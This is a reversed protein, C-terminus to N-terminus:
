FKASYRTGADDTAKKVLSTQQYAAESPGTYGTGSYESGVSLDAYTTPRVYGAPAAAASAAAAAAGASPSSADLMAALSSVYEGRPLTAAAIHVTPPRQRPPGTPAAVDEMVVDQMPLEQYMYQNTGAMQRMYQRRRLVLSAAALATALVVFAIAVLVYTVQQSVTGSGTTPEPNAAVSFPMTGAEASTTSSSGIQDDSAPVTSQVVNQETDTALLPPPPPAPTPAPTVPAEVVSSFVRFNRVRMSARYAGFGIGYTGNETAVGPYDYWTEPVVYETGNWVSISAASATKNFAVTVNLWDTAITGPTVPIRSANYNTRVDCMSSCQFTTCNARYCTARGNNRFGIASPNVRDDPQTVFQARIGTGFGVGVDRLDYPLVVRDIAALFFTRIGIYYEQLPHITQLQVDYTATFAADPAAVAQYFRQRSSADAPGVLQQVDDPWVALVSEVRVRDPHSSGVYAIASNGLFLEEATEDIPNEISFLDSTNLWVRQWDALSGRLVYAPASACAASSCWAQYVETGLSNAAAAACAALVICLLSFAM